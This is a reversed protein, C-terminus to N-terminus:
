VGFGYGYSRPLTRMIEGAMLSVDEINGVESVYERNENSAISYLRARLLSSKGNSLCLIGAPVSCGLKLRAVLEREFIFSRYTEENNIKKIAESEESGKRSVVAIIGQNPAPLFDEESLIFSNAEEGMRDLAARALIIGDYDGSKLKEMRTDINGRIDKVVLDPRISHLEAIRRRSSTGIVSGEPLEELRYESVLVDNYSGRELVAGVELSENIASPIDKASHVAIDYTSDQVRANLEEVFVGIRGMEYIPSSRDRDGRTSFAHIEGELGQEKLASLVLGAQILALKSGRTGIELKM